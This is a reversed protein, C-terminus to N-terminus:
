KRTGSWRYLDAIKEQSPTENVVPPTYSSHRMAEEPNQFSRLTKKAKNNKEDGGGAKGKEHKKIVDNFAQAEEIKGARLLWSVIAEREADSQTAGYVKEVNDKTIWSFDNVPGGQNLVSGMSGAPSVGLYQEARQNVWADRQPAGARYGKFVGTAADFDSFQRDYDENALEISKFRDSYTPLIYDRRRNGTAMNDLMQSLYKVEEPDRSTRYRQFLREFDTPQSAGFRALEMNGANRAGIEAMEGQHRMSEVDLLGKNRLEIEKMSLNHKFLEMQREAESQINSLKTLKDTRFAEFQEPTMNPDAVFPRAYEDPLGMESQMKMLVLNYDQPNSALGLQDLAYKSWQNVKALELEKNKYGWEKRTQERTDLQFRRDEPAYQLALESLKRRNRANALEEEFLKTDRYGKTFPLNEM